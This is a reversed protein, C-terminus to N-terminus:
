SLGEPWFFRYRSTTASYEPPTWCPPSPNLPSHEATAQPDVICDPHYSTHLQHASLSDTLFFAAGLNQSCSLKKTSLHMDHKGSRELKECGKVFGNSTYLIERPFPFRKRKSTKTKATLEDDGEYYKRMAEAMGTREIRRDWEM